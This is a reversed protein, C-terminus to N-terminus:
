APCRDPSGNQRKLQAWGYINNDTELTGVTLVPSLIDTPSNLSAGGVRAWNIFIVFM